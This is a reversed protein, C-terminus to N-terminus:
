LLPDADNRKDDYMAQDARILATDVTDGPNMQAVGWSWPHTAFERLRHMLLRAEEADTEPLLMAFEDGGLRGVIDSSRSLSMWQASLSKLVFDGAAHGAGDNVSKFKDLDLVAISVPRDHRAARRFEMGSKAVFGRRNLAGTLEDTHSELRIRHRVFLGAELCLWTFLAAGFLNVPGLLANTGEVATTYPGYVIAGGVFALIALEGLRAIRAGYFWSFYMAMLPLEQLAAIANQREDSFGLYYASVVAHAVVLAIGTWRALEVGFFAVMVVLALCIGLIGISLVQEFLTLDKEFLEFAGLAAFLLAIAATVVSYTSTRERVHRLWGTRLWRLDEADAARIDQVVM